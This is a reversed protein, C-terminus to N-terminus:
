PTVIRHLAATNAKAAGYYTEFTHVWRRYNSDRYAYYTITVGTQPDTLVEIYETPVTQAPARLGRMAIALCDPTCAFGALKESNTGLTAAEHLAMGGLRVIAGAGDVVASLGSASLNSIKVDKLLAGIFDPNLVLATDPIPFHAKVLATRWDIVDDNDLAAAAVASLATPYSAAVILGFVYTLLEDACANVKKEIVKDRTDAMVGAGIQIMEDDTLEFGSVYRRNLTVKVETTTEGPIITADNYALTGKAVPASSAPVIRTSVQTGQLVDGSFDRTFINLGLLRKNFVALGRQAINVFSMGNFTNAM